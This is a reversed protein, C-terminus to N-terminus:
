YSKDTAIAMGPDSKTKVLLGRERMKARLYKEALIFRKFQSNGTIRDLQLSNEAKQILREATDQESPAEDRKKEAEEKSNGNEVLKEVYLDKDKERPTPYLNSSLELYFGWLAKIWLDYDPGQFKAANLAQCCNDLRILYALSQDWESSLSDFGQAM